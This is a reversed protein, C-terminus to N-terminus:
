GETTQRQFANKLFERCGASFRQRHKRMCARMAEPDGRSTACYREIDAGCSSRMAAQFAEAQAIHNKCAPKLEQRHEKLCVQIKARDRTFLHSRCHRLVDSKCAQKGAEPDPPTITGPAGSISVHGPLAFLPFGVFLVFSLRATITQNTTKKM